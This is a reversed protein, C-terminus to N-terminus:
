SILRAIEQAVNHISQEVRNKVTFTEFPSDDPTSKIKTDLFVEGSDEDVITIHATLTGNFKVDFVRCRIVVGEKIDTGGSVVEIRKHSEDLLTRSYESTWIGHFEAWEGDDLEWETPEYMDIDIKVATFWRTDHLQNTQNVQTEQVTVATCCALVSVLLLMPVLLRM